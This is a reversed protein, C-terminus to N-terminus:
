KEIGDQIPLTVLTETIEPRQLISLIENKVTEYAGTSLEIVFNKGPKLEFRIHEKQCANIKKQIASERDLTYSRTTIKSPRLDGTSLNKRFKQVQM